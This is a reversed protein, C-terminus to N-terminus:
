VGFDHIFKNDSSIMGSSSKVRECFGRFADCGFSFGPRVEATLTYFKSEERVWALKQHKALPTFTFRCAERARSKAEKDLDNTKREFYGNACSEETFISVFANKKLAPDLALDTHCAIITTIYGWRGQYFLKKIVPHKKYRSLIDTCDDFIMVLRPNMNLYKLTHAEEKSLRLDRLYVRSKNIFTKYVLLKLKECQKRMEDVKARATDPPLDDMEAEYTQLRAAIQRLQNVAPAASQPPIKSFLSELVEPKNANTYVRALAAQRDWIDVLLEETVDYHICPRPVIGSEYTRNERDTPSFVIIQDVHQNLQFLIDVIVTSKGSGSAGYLVTTKDMFKDYTIDLKQISM